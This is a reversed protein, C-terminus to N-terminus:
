RPLSPPCCHMTNGCLRKGTKLDTAFNNYRRLTTYLAKLRRLEAQEIQLQNRYDHLLPSYQKAAKIYCSLSYGQGYTAVGLVYSALFLLIHKMALKKNKPCFDSILKPFTQLRLLSLQLDRGGQPFGSCWWACDEAQLVATKRSRPSCDKAQLVVTRAQLSRIYKLRCCFLYVANAFDAYGALPM